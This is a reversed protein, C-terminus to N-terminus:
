STKHWCIRGSDCIVDCTTRLASLCARVLSQALNSRLGSSRPSVRRSKKLKPAGLRCEIEPLAGFPSQDVLHDDVTSRSVQAVLEKRFQCPACSETTTVVFFSREFFCLLCNMWLPVSHANNSFTCHTWQRRKEVVSFRYQRHPITKAISCAPESANSFFGPGRGTVTRVPQRYRVEISSSFCITPSTVSWATSLCFIVLRPLRVFLCM